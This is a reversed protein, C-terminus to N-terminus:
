EMNVFRYPRNAFASHRRIQIEWGDYKIDSRLLLCKQGSKTSDSHSDVHRIQDIRELQTIDKSKVLAARCQSIHQNQFVRAAALRLTSKFFSRDLTRMARNIPPRMDEPM